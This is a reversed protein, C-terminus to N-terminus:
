RVKKRHDYFPHAEGGARGRLYSDSVDYRGKVTASPPPMKGDPQKSQQRLVQTGVVKTRPSVRPRQRARYLDEAKM